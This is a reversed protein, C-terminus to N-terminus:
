NHIAPSYQSATPWDTYTTLGVQLTRGLDPRSYRRHVVWPGGAQQRLMILANGVRAVQIIARNTAPWSTLSSVSNSTTKVEFQYAGAIGAAGLSLFVYNEGGPTWSSPNTVGPRVARVMIGGLSYTSQPAGSGSRGTSEVETTVVFDGTVNKFALEGRFNQYWTSSFPIMVLSGPRSTNIDFTQLQNAGSGEVQYVRQFNVLTRSDGFEDSLFSLDDAAVAQLVTLFILVCGQVLWRFSYSKKMTESSFRRPFLIRRLRSALHGAAPVGGSM